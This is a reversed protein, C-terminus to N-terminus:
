AATAEELTAFIRFVSMLRSIELVELVPGPGCVLSMSGEIARLRKLILLLVGLGTSDIFRLTTLDIVLCSHGGSLLEIAADRVRPAAAVDLDGRLVLVPCRGDTEDIELRFESQEM